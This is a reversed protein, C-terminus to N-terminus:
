GSTWIVLLTLYIVAETIQQTAGLCDGTYGGIRRYFYRALGLSAILSTVVAVWAAASDWLLLPVAIVLGGTAVSSPACRRVEMPCATKWVRYIAVASGVVASGVAM